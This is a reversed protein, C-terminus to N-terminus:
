CDPPSTAAAPAPSSSTRSSPPATGSSQYQEYDGPNVHRPLKMEYSTSASIGVSGYGAHADVRGFQTYNGGLDFNAASVGSAVSSISSERFFSDRERIEIPPESVRGYVLNVHGGIRNTSAAASGAAVCCALLTATLLRITRPFPTTHNM